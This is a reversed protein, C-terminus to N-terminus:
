PVAELAFCLTIVMATSPYAANPRFARAMAASRWKSSVTRCRGTKTLRIFFERCPCVGTPGQPNRCTTLITAHNPAIEHGEKGSTLFDESRKVSLFKPRLEKKNPVRYGLLNNVSNNIAVAVTDGAENLEPWSQLVKRVQGLLAHFELGSFFPGGVAARLCEKV